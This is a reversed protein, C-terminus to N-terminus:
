LLSKGDISVLVIDDFTSESIMAYDTECAERARKVLKRPDNGFTKFSVGRLEGTGCVKYLAMHWM